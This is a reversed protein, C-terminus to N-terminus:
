APVGIMILFIATVPHGIFEALKYLFDYGIDRVEKYGYKRCLEGYDDVVERALGLKRADEANLKLFDGRPKIQLQKNWRKPGDPSQDHDWEDQDILKWEDPGKRSQM